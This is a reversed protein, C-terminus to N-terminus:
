AGKPRDDFEPHTAMFLALAFCHWAANIVHPAGTEPDTDEGSWWLNLHRQMAAYSKSWEYGREFNRAAYKEAGRGYLRALETLPGVPILDFREPKVGKEGGSSSTTRVETSPPTQYVVAHGLAEALAKEATAGKSKEWGDLMFIADAERCIWETDAGLADRLSFGTDTIDALDGTASDNVGDGHKERDREAPNFVEHGQERLLATAADFAPFNFLPYGRMPGAVYFKM